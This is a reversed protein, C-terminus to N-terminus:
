STLCKPWTHIYVDMVVLNSAQTTTIIATPTHQWRYNSKRCASPSFPVRSLSLEAGVFGLRAEIAKRCM